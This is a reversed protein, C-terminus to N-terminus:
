GGSGPRYNEILYILPDTQTNGKRFELRYVTADNFFIDTPLTGNALFRITQTWPNTADPNHYVTAPIYPFVNELVFMYFTDDFSHGTLDVEYWIPNSGRVYSM